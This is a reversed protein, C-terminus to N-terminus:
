RKNLVDRHYSLPRAYVAERVHFILLGVASMGVGASVLVGMLVMPILTRDYGQADLLLLQMAPQVPQHRHSRKTEDQAM